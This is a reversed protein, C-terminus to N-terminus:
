QYSGALNAELILLPQARHSLWSMCENAHQGRQGEQERQILLFACQFGFVEPSLGEVPWELPRLRKAELIGLGPENRWNKNWQPSVKGKAKQLQARDIM